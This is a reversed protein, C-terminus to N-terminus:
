IDVYYHNILGCELLLAWMSKCGGVNIEIIGYVYLM